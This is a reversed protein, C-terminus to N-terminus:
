TVADMRNAITGTAGASVSASSRRSTREAIPAASSSTSAMTSSCKVPMAAIVTIGLWSAASPAVSNDGIAIAIATAAVAKPTSAKPM